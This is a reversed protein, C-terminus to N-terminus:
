RLGRRGASRGARVGWAPRMRFLLAIARRLRSIVPGWYVGGTEIGGHLLVIPPGDGTELVATSVGALDLRRETVPIGALLRARAQDDTFRRGREQVDQQGSM